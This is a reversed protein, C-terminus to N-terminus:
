SSLSHLAHALERGHLDRFTFLPRGSLTEAITVLHVARHRRRAAAARMLLPLRLAFSEDFRHVTPKM